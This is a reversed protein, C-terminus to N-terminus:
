RAASTPEEGEGYVGLEGDCGRASASAGWGERTTSRCACCCTTTIRM